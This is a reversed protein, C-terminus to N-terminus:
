NPVFEFPIGPFLSYTNSESKLQRVVMEFTHVILEIERFRTHAKISPDTILSSTIGEQIMEEAEKVLTDKFWQSISEPHERLMSRFERELQDVSKLNM